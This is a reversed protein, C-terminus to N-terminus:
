AAVELGPHTDIVATRASFHFVRDHVAALHAIEGPDTYCRSTLGCPTCTWSRIDVEGAHPRPAAIHALARALAQTLGTSAHHTHATM